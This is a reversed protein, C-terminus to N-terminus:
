IKLLVIYVYINEFMFISVLYNICIIVYVIFYLMYVRYYM